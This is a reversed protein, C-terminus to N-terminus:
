GPSRGGHYPSSFSDDTRKRQRLPVEQGSMQRLPRGTSPRTTSPSTEKFQSGSRETDRETNYDIPNRSLTMDEYPEEVLGLAHPLHTQIPSSFLGPPSGSHALDREGAKSQSDDSTVTTAPAGGDWEESLSGLIMKKVNGTAPEVDIIDSFSHACVVKFTGSLSKRYSQM